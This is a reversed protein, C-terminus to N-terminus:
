KKLHQTSFQTPTVGYYRKFAHHYSVVDCYGLSLAINKISRTGAIQYAAGREMRVELLLKNYSTGLDALRRRLTRESINLHSCLDAPSPFNGAADVLLSKVSADLTVPRSMKRLARSCEELCLLHVSECAFKLRDRTIDPNFVVLATPQDFLLRCSFRQRLEDSYVPEPYPFSISRFLAAPEKVLDHLATLTLIWNELLYRKLPSDPLAIDATLTLHGQQHVLARVPFTSGFAARYRLYTQFARIVNESSLMAHGLVGLDNLQFSTGSRFGIDPLDLAEILTNAVSLYQDRDIPRGKIWLLKPDIALRDFLAGTQLGEAKAIALLRNLPTSAMGEADAQM